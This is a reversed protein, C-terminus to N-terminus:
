VQTLVHNSSFQQIISYQVIESHDTNLVSVVNQEAHSMYNLFTTQTIRNRQRSKQNTDRCLISKGLKMHDLILLATYIGAFEWNCITM